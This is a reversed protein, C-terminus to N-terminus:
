EDRNSISQAAQRLPVYERIVPVRASPNKNLNGDMRKVYEKYEENKKLNKTIEEAPDYEDRLANLKEKNKMHYIAVDYKAKLSKSNAGSRHM